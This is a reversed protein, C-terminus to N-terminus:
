IKYAPRQTHEPLAGPYARGGYDASFAAGIRCGKRYVQSVRRDHHSWDVSDRRKRSIAKIYEICRYCGRRRGCRHDYSGRGPVPHNNGAAKVEQILKKMREEFEGRYKSGAIMGALDMTLIRKDKMGEPVIGSAIKAALGEIVATKGVGPEGVLCPNNKTRRSLVQMLRGIEEERGIVPDLKGEKAQADSGNWVATRGRRREAPSRCCKRRISKPDVGLVSLIDQYLKQLSINLTLLIRTAVCDTEHLLSLLMHETGIQSSQFRLAEAKSEELIYALRPSIEPNHALAVSGVPSVLEDVVKLIKEEDVGSIALVQGAVGTYVKRLGLLLHETGVYPHDLEKAINKAIRLVDNAQETYNM